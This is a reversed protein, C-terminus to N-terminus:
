PEAGQSGPVRPGAAPQRASPSLLSIQVLTPGPSPKPAATDLRRPLTGADAKEIGALGRLTVFLSSGLMLVAAFVPHLWGAAAVSMGILNYAAAFLLNSQLRAISERAISIAQPLASLSQGDWLFDAQEAALSAGSRLAVAVDAEALAAADNVGDGVFLVRRGEAQLRRVHVSKEIADVGARANPLGTAAVRRRDQDGSLVHTHLGLTALQGPLESLGARPKEEVRAVGALREDILIGLHHCGKSVIASFETCRRATEEEEWTLSLGGLRGIVTEFSSNAHEVRGVVGIGPIARVGSVSLPSRDSRFAAGIPHGSAIELSYAVHLLDDRSWESVPQLDILEPDAGMLTGTKDFVIDTVKALNEVAEGYSPVLGVRSLRTTAAWMIVPTAFGFACPCAVVLVALGRMLGEQPGGNVFGLIGAALSITAVVPLFWRAVREALREFRGPTERARDIAALVRDVQRADGNATAEVVVTADVIESGAVVRDGVSKSVLCAEGTVSAERAFCMGEVVIGDVPAPAGPQCRVTQGSRIGSVPTWCSRGADDVLECRQDAPRLAEVARLMTDQAKWKLESGLRYIVVLVSVVEFYVPGAGTAMAILSAGLAGVCGLLFLTELSPRLRRTADAADTLLPWGVLGVVVLTTLLLGIHVMQREVPTAVSTNIALAVVMSNGALFAGLLLRTWPLSHETPPITSPGIPQRCCSM